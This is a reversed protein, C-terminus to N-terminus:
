ADVDDALQRPAHVEDGGVLDDMADLGIKSAPREGVERVLRGSLRGLGLRGMECPSFRLVSYCSRRSASRDMWSSGVRLVVLRESSVSRLPRARRRPRGRPRRRSAWTGWASSSSSRWRSSTRRPMSSSCPRSSSRRRSTSCNTRRRSKWRKWSWSWSWSTPRRSRRRGTSSKWSSSMTTSSSSWRNTVGHLGRLFAGAHERPDGAGHAVRSLARHPPRAGASLTPSWSSGLPYLRTGFGNDGYEPRKEVVVPERGKHRLKAALTLGAVGGGVILLKM